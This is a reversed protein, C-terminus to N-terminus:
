FFQVEDVLRNKSVPDLATMGQHEYFRSVYEDDKKRFLIKIMVYAKYYEINEEIHNSKDAEHNGKSKVKAIIFDKDQKFATIIM